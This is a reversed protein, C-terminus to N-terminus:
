KRKITILAQHFLDKKNMQFIQTKELLTEVDIMKSAGNILINRIPNPTESSKVNLDGLVILIDM